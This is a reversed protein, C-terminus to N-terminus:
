MKFTTCYWLCFLFSLETRLIKNNHPTDDSTLIINQFLGYMIHKFMLCQKSTHSLVKCFLM